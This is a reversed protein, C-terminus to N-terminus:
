LAVEVVVRVGALGGDPDITESATVGRATYGSSLVADDGTLSLRYTLGAFLEWAVTAVGLGDTNLASTSPKADTTVCGWWEVVLTVVRVKPQRAPPPLDAPQDLGVVRMPGPYVALLDCAAVPPGASVFRTAPKDTLCKTAADLLDACAQALTDSTPAAM